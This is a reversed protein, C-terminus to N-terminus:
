SATPRQQWRQNWNSSTLGSILARQVIRGNANKGVLSVRQPRDALTLELTPGALAVTERDVYTSRPDPREAVRAEWSTVGRQADWELVIADREARARVTMNAAITPRARYIEARRAPRAPPPAALPTALSRRARHVALLRELQRLAQGGEPAVVERIRAELAAADPEVGRAIQKRAEDLIATLDPHM